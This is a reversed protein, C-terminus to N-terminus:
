PLRRESGFVQSTNGDFIASESSGGITLQSGIWVPGDTSILVVSCLEFISSGHSLAVKARASVLGIEHMFLMVRSRALQLGLRRVPWLCRCVAGRLVLTLTRHSSTRNVRVGGVAFTAAEVEM